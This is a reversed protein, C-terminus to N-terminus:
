SMVSNNHINALTQRSGMSRGKMKLILNRDGHLPSQPPGERGKLPSLIDQFRKDPSGPQTQNMSKHRRDIKSGIKEGMKDNGKSIDLNSLKASLGSIKKKNVLNVFESKLGFSSKKAPFVNDYVVKQSEPSQGEESDIKQTLNAPSNDFCESVDVDIDQLPMKEMSKIRVQKYSRDPQSSDKQSLDGQSISSKTKIRVRSKTRSKIEPSKSNEGFEDERVPNNVMSDIPRFENEIDPTKIGGLTEARQLGEGPSNLLGALGGLATALQDAENAKKSRKLRELLKIQKGLGRIFHPNDKIVSGKIDFKGLNVMLWDMVEAFNELLEDCQIEGDGSDDIMHLLIQMEEESCDRLGLSGCIERLLKALEAETLAGSKDKDYKDFAITVIQELERSIGKKEPEM